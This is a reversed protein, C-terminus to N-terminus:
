GAVTGKLPTFKLSADPDLRLMAEAELPKLHWALGAIMAANDTCLSFHPFWIRVGAARLGSATRRLGRNSAVGGVVVLDRAGSAGVARMSKSLLVDIATAQFGACLDRVIKEPLVGSANGGSSGSGGNSGDAGRLAEVRRAVASKLGSFSFDLVDRRKLPATFKFAAPDGEAALRDVIPGGPYGLGMVRAVKDYAEGVADDRTAALPRCQGPAEVVVLTTHGGSVILGVHPFEPTKIVAAEAQPSDAEHPAASDERAFPIAAKSEGVEILLHAQDAREPLLYPAHLHAELHNIAHLPKGYRWALAKATEVGIMLCGILGPGQTVAVGEIRDWDVGGARQMMSDILPLLTEIHKRSAVEPVVGGFKAHLDAQSAVVNAIVRGDRDVLACATEDCSTEIGLMYSSQPSM